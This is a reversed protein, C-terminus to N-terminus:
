SWVGDNSVRDRRDLLCFICDLISGIIDADSGDPGGVAFVDRVLLDEPTITDSTDELYQSTCADFRYSNTLGTKAVLGAHHSIRSKHPCPANM